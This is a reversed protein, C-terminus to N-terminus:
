IIRGLYVALYLVGCVQQLNEFNGGQELKDVLQLLSSLKM